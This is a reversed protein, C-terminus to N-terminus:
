AASNDESPIAYVPDGSASSITPHSMTTPPTVYGQNDKARRPDDQQPIPPRVGQYLSYDPNEAVPTPVLYGGGAAAGAGQNLPQRRLQRNRSRDRWISHVVSGVLLIGLVAIIVITM